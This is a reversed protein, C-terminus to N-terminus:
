LTNYVRVNVKWEAVEGNAGVHKYEGGDVLKHALKEVIALATYRVTPGMAM